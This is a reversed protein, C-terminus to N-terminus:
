TSLIVRGIAEAARKIAGPPGLKERVAVLGSTLEEKTAGELLGAVEVTVNEPTLDKHSLEPFLPEGLLINPLGFIEHKRRLSALLRLLVSTKQLILMHTGALAAEVTATGAAVIAVDSATLATQRQGQFTKVRHPSIEVLENLLGEDYREADPILLRVKWRCVEAAEAAGEVMLRLLDRTEDEEDGPLLTIPIETRDYGLIAKAENRSMACDVIDVLPHGVLEADVGAEKYLPVEFPLVALVKDVLGALKKLRTHKLSNNWAAAYYIVAIGKGKAKRILHLDFAPRDMLIICDIREDELVENPIVTSPSYDRKKKTATGGTCTITTAPAIDKLAAALHVAYIDGYGGSSVLLVNKEM